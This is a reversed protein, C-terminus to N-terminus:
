LHSHAVLHNSPISSLVAPLVILARLQQAMEGAKKWDKKFAELRIPGYSGNENLGNCSTIGLKSFFIEKDLSFMLILTMLTVWCTFVNSALGSLSSQDGLSV